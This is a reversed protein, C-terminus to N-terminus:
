STTIKMESLNKNKQEIEELFQKNEIKLREFDIPHLNEGLEEKEQLLQNVRVLTSRLTSTCLRLKEIV